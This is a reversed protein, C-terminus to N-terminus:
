RQDKREPDLGRLWISMDKLVTVNLSYFIFRGRRDESVLGSERLVKLHYSLASPAVETITSLNGATTEGVRLAVLVRRRVPDDLARWVQPLLM